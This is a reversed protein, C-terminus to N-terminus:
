DILSAKQNDEISTYFVKAMCKLFNLLFPTFNNLNCHPGCVLLIFMIEVIVCRM